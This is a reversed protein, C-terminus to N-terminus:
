PRGRAPIPATRTRARSGFEAGARTGGHRRETVDRTIKLFGQLAGDPTRIATVVVNAWFSSGDKRIRKAEEMFRSERAATKLVWEPKGAAQDQPSYFCGFYKGIIEERTYGKIRQAGANWSVVRGTADLAFIAYEEVADVLARFNEEAQLLRDDTGVAM